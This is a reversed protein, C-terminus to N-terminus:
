IVVRPTAVVECIRDRLRRFCVKRSFLHRMKDQGSAAIRQRAEPNEFLWTLEETWSKSDGALVGDVRHSILKRNEGLNQSAALAGGAMYIKAKLNGRVFSDEVNYLPFLGIHMAQIESIMQRRDYRPFTQFRVAEFPPLDDPTAGLVRLEFDFGSTAMGELCEFIQYLAGARRPSGVWGLRVTNGEARPSIPSEFDEVQPCDPVLFSNPTLRRVHELIFENECFCADSWSIMDEFREFGIQRHFPHWLADNIDFIIKPKRLKWLSRHLEADPVKVLYVVDMRNALTLLRRTREYTLRKRIRTEFSILPATLSRVLPWRNGFFSFTAQRSELRVDISSDDKFSQIFQGARVHASPFLVLDEVLILLKM